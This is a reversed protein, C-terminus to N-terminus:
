KISTGLRPPKRLGKKPPLSGLIPIQVFPHKTM